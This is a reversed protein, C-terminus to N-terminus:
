QIRPILSCVEDEMAKKVTAVSTKLGNGQGSRKQVKSAATMTGKNSKNNVDTTRAM